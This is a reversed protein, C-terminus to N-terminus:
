MALLEDEMRGTTRKARGEKKRRAANARDGVRDSDTDAGDDDDDDGLVVEQLAFLTVVVIAGMASSAASGEDERGRQSRPFNPKEVGCESSM